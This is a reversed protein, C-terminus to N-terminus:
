RLRLDKEAIKLLQNSCVHKQFGSCKIGSLQAFQKGSLGSHDFEPLLAERRAVPTLIRGRTDTKLILSNSGPSFGCPRM